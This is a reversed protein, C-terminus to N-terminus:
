DFKSDSIETCFLNANCYPCPVFSKPCTKWFKLLSIGIKFRVEVSLNGRMIKLLGSKCTPCIVYLRFLIYVMLFWLVFYIAGYSFSLAAIFSVCMLSVAIIIM